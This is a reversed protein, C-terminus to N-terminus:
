SARPGRSHVIDTVAGGGKWVAKDELHIDPFQAM